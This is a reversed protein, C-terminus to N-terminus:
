ATWPRMLRSKGWCLVEKKSEMMGHARGEEEEEEEDEDEDVQVRKSDSGSAVCGLPLSHGFPEDSESQKESWDAPGPFIAIEAVDPTSREPKIEEKCGEWHGKTGRLSM